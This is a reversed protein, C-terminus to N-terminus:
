FFVTEAVIHLCSHMCFTCKLFSHSHCFTHPHTHPQYCSKSGLNFGTMVGSISNGTCISMFAPM